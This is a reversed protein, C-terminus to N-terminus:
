STYDIDRTQAPVTSPEAQRQKALLQRVEEISRCEGGLHLVAHCNPCVPRLDKVPDVVYEGSIESLPRIHHVHIYGQAEPGYVSRFSFSCVSCSTGHAAICQQRAVPNREYANVAVQRIAGEFLTPSQTVEEPLRGSVGAQYGDMLQELVAKLRPYRVLYAHMIKNLKESELPWLTSQVFFRDGPLEVPDTILWNVLRVHHRHTTKDNRIPNQKSTPALYESAVVGIGVVRNYGKNAVVIHQPKVENVFRWIIRAAGSGCGKTGKGYVEVLADLVEEEDSYRAYDALELWGLGICSHGNFLDWDEAGQGPAVKWVQVMHTTGINLSSEAVFSYNALKVQRMFM